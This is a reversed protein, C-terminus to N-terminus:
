PSCVNVLAGVRENAKGDQSYAKIAVEVNLCGSFAPAPSAFLRFTVFRGVCFGQELQALDVKSESMTDFTTFKLRQGSPSTVNVVFPQLRKELAVAGLDACALMTGSLERGDFRPQIMVVRPHLVGERNAHQAFGLPSLVAFLAVLLLALGRGLDKSVLAQPM